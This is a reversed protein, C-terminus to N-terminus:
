HKSAILILRESTHKEFPELQYNGFVHDLQLGSKRFYAEFAKQDLARVKEAYQRTVGKDQITIRKHLFGDSFSKSITFLTDNIMRSEDEILHQL